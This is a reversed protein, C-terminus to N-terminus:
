STADDRRQDYGDFKASWTRSADLREDTFERWTLSM